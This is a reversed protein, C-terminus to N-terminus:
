RTSRVRKQLEVFASMATDRYKESLDFMSYNLSHFGALTIFQYKVDLESLEDQFNRIESDCNQKGILHHRVTILL